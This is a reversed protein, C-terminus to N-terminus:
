LSIVCINLLKDTVNKARTHTQYKWMMIHTKSVWAWCLLEISDCAWWIYCDGLAVLGFRVLHIPASMVISDCGYGIPRCAMQEQM